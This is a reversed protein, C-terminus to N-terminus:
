QAAPIITPEQQAVAPHHMPCIPEAPTIASAFCSFNNVINMIHRTKQSIKPIKPNMIAIRKHREHFYIYYIYQITFPLRSLQRVLLFRFFEPVRFPSIRYYITNVM